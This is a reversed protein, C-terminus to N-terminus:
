QFSLFSLSKLPQLHQSLVCRVSFGYSRNNSNRTNVATSNFNLNSGNSVSPASGSWYYGNGGQNSIAGTSYNRYGAAPFFIDVTGGAVKDFTIWYGKKDGDWRRPLEAIFDHEDDTMLRKGQKEAAKMANDWTFYQEGNMSKYEGGDSRKCLTKDRLNNKDIWMPYGCILVLEADKRSREPALLFNLESELAERADANKQENALIAEAKKGYEVIKELTIIM